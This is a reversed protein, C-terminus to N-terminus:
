QARDIMDGPTVARKRTREELVQTSIGTGLTLLDTMSSSFELTLSFLLENFINM